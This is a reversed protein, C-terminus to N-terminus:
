KKQDFAFSSVVSQAKGVFQQLDKSRKPDYDAGAASGARHTPHFSFHLSQAKTKIAYHINSGKSPVIDGKIGNITLIKGVLHNFQHFKIKKRNKPNAFQDMATKLRLSQNQLRTDSESKINNGSALSISSAPSTPSATSCATPSKNGRTQLPDLGKENGCLRDVDHVSFYSEKWLLVMIEHFKLIKKQELMEVAIRLRLSTKKANLAKLTQLAIKMQESDRKIILEIFTNLHIARWHGNECTKKLYQQIEKLANLPVCDEKFQLITNIDIMATSNQRYLLFLKISAAIWISLPDGGKATLEAYKLSLEENVPTGWGELYCQSLAGYVALDQTEEAIKLYAFIKELDLTDINVSTMIDIYHNALYFAAIKVGKELAEKLIKEGAEKNQAVGKGTILSVAKGCIGGESNLDAAKCYYEYARKEDRKGKLDLCGNMYLNGMGLYAEAYEEAMGLQYLTQAEKFNKNEFYFNGLIPMLEKNTQILKKAMILYEEIKKNDIIFSAPIKNQFFRYCFWLAAWDSGSDASKMLFQTGELENKKLAPCGEFLHLGYWGLADPPFEVITDKILAFFSHMVEENLGLIELKPSEESLYIQCVTSAARINNQKAAEILLELATKRENEKPYLMLAYDIQANINGNEFSKKYYELAKIPSAEVGFNGAQYIMAINRLTESHIPNYTLYQHYFELAKKFDRDNEKCGYHYYFGLSYFAGECGMNSALQFYELAKKENKQFGAQGEQYLGGLAVNVWALLASNEEEMTKNIKSKGKEIFFRAKVPDTPFKPEENTFFIVGLALEALAYQNLASMYIWANREASGLPMKQAYLYQAEKDGMFAATELWAMELVESQQAETNIEAKIKIDTNQLDVGEEIKNDIKKANLKKYALALKFELKGGASSDYALKADKDIITAEMPYYYKQFDRAYLNVHWCADTSKDAATGAKSLKNELALRTKANSAFEGLCELEKLLNAKSKEKTKKKTSGGNKNKSKKLAIICLSAELWKKPQHTLPIFDILELIRKVEKEQTPKLKRLPINPSKDLLYEVYFPAYLNGHAATALFLEFAEQYNENEFLTVAKYFPVKTIDLPM